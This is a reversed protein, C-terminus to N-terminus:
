YMENEGQPFTASRTPHTVWFGLFAVIGGGGGAGGLIVLCGGSRLATCHLVVCCLVLNPPTAFFACTNAGMVWSYADTHM